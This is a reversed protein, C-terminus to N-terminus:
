SDTYHFVGAFDKHIHNCHLLNLSAFGIKPMGLLRWCLNHVFGERRQLILLSWIRLLCVVAIVRTDEFMNILAQHNIIIYRMQQSFIPLLNLLRAGQTDTYIYSCFQKNVIDNCIRTVYTDNDNTQRPNAAGSRREIAKM